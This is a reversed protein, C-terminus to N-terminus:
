WRVEVRGDEGPGPQVLPIGQGTRGGRKGGGISVGDGNGAANNLAHRGPFLCIRQQRGSSNPVHAITVRGHAGISGGDGKCVVFGKYSAHSETGATGDTGAAAETVGFAVDHYANDDTVGAVGAVGVVITIDEGPNVTLVLVARGGNGGRGGLVGLATSSYQGGGNCPYPANGNQLGTYVAGGSGAGSAGICTLEVGVIGEPVTWTYTGPTDFIQVNTTLSGPAQVTVKGGKVIALWSEYARQQLSSNTLELEHFLHRGDRETISVLQIVFSGSLGFTPLDVTAVQGARFGYGRVQCTVTQRPLGSTALRLNAYSIGLLALDAADNSTPHTIEEYEEYIGTGGELLARADIQDQNRRQQTSVRADASSSSAPTGTVVVTQVNRYTERDTKVNTSEILVNAENLLLPATDATASRMQISRDFDVYFSQGTATAVTRLVELLKAGKGDVLPLLARSDITGITLGEGLLENELISDVVDQVTLNTVTRNFKRRVLIQSWDQGDCPYLFTVDDPSDREVHDITGAFIVQAFYRVRLQNGVQPDINKLTFNITVPQGLTDQIKLSNMLIADRIDVGDLDMVIPSLDEAESLGPDNLVSGLSISGLGASAFQM